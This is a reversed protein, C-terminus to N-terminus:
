VLRTAPIQDKVQKLIVLYSDLVDTVSERSWEDLLEREREDTLLGDPTGYVHGYIFGRSDFCWRTIRDELKGAFAEKLVAASGISLGLPILEAKLAFGRELLEGSKIRSKQDDGLREVIIETRRRMVDSGVPPEVEETVPSGDLRGLIARLEELREDLFERNPFVSWGYSVGEGSAYLNIVGRGLRRLDYIVGWHWDHIQGREDAAQLMLVQAWAQASVKLQESTLVAQFTARIKEGRKIWKEITVHVADRDTAIVAPLERQLVEGRSAPPNSAIAEADPVGELPLVLTHRARRVSAPLGRWVIPSWTALVRLREGAWALLWALGHGIRVRLWKRRWDGLLVVVLAVATGGAGVWLIRALHHPNVSAAIGAIVFGTLLALLGDRLFRM